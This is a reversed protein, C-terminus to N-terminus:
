WKINKKAYASLADSLERNRKEQKKKKRKESCSNCHCLKIVNNM